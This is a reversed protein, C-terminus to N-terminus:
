TNELVVNEIVNAVDEARDTATEILDLIEKWKIITLTDTGSRFLDALARRLLSDAQNELSNIEKCADLIRRSDKVNRLGHVAEQMKRTQALLVTALEGAEPMVTQIDYLGIRETAADTLDLVDDIASLLRHIVARDFPTIFQTYLLAFAAHTVDDARHEVDKIERVKRPIDRFDELMEKFLRAGEVTLAAQKEFADFFADTKPMLKTLISVHTEEPHSPARVIGEFALPEL